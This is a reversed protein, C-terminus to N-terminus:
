DDRRQDCAAAIRPALPTRPYADLFARARAAADGAHLVCAAIARVGEREVAFVGHPWREEHGECLALAAANQGARLAAHIREFWAIEARPDRASADTAKVKAAALAREPSAQASDARKLTEDSHTPQGVDPQASANGPKSARSSRLARRRVQTDGADSAPAPTSHKVLTNASVEDPVSGVSPVDPRVDNGANPLTERQTADARESTHHSRRTLTVAGVTLAVVLVLKLGNGFSVLGGARASVQSVGNGAASLTGVTELRRALAEAVRARDGPTADHDTRSARFLTEPAPGWDGGSNESGSM